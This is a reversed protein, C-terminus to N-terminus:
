NSLTQLIFDMCRQGWNSNALKYNHAISTSETTYMDSVQNHDLNSMCEAYVEIRKDIDKISDWECKGYPKFGMKKLTANFKYGGLAFFLRNAQLPKATKETLFLNAHWFNTERVISCMSHDFITNPTIRCTWPNHLGVTHSGFKQIWEAQDYDWTTISGHAKEVWEDSNFDYMENYKTFTDAFIKEDYDQLNFQDYYRYLMKHKFPELHTWLKDIYKHRRGLLADFLFEKHKNINPKVNVASEFWSGAYIFRPNAFDFPSDELVVDSLLIVQELPRGCAEAYLKQNMTVFDEKAAMIIVDASSDIKAVSDPGTQISFNITIGFQKEVSQQTLYQDCRHKFFIEWDSPQGNYRTESLSSTHTITKVNILRQLEQKDM